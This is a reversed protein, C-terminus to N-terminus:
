NRSKRRPKRLLDKKEKQRRLKKKSDAIIRIADPWTLNPNRKKEKRYYVSAESFIPNGKRTTTKKSGTSKARKTKTVKKSGTSKVKRKAAGGYMDDYEMLLGGRRSGLSASRRKPKPRADSLFQRKGTPGVFRLSGSATRGDFVYGRKQGVMKGGDMMSYDCGGQM